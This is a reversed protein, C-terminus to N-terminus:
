NSCASVPAISLCNAYAARAEDLEGRSYYGNGTVLARTADADGDQAGVSLVALSLCLVRAPM